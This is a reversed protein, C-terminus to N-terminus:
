QSVPDTEKFAVQRCKATTTLLHSGSLPLMPSFGFLDLAQHGLKSGYWRVFPGRLFSVAFQGNSCGCDYDFTTPPCIGWTVSTWRLISLQALKFECRQHQCIGQQLQFVLVPVRQSAAWFAWLLVLSSTLARGTTFLDSLSRRQHLPSLVVPTRREGRGGWQLPGDM